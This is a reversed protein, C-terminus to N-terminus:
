KDDALENLLVDLDLGPLGDIKEQTQKAFATKQLIALSAKAVERDAGADMLSKSRISDFIKDAIRLLLLAISLWTM